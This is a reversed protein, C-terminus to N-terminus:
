NKKAPAEALHGLRFNVTAGISDFDYGISRTYALDFGVRRTPNISLDGSFGHDKTLSSTGSTVPATQFPRHSNGASGTSGAQKGLHSYIKQDGFPVVDYASAEFSM